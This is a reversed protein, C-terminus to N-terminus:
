QGVLEDHVQSIAWARYCVKKFAIIGTTTYAAATTFFCFALASFLMMTTICVLPLSTTYNVSLRPFFSLRMM